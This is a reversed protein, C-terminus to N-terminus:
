RWGWSINACQAIREATLSGSTFVKPERCNLPEILLMCACRPAFQQLIAVSLPLRGM